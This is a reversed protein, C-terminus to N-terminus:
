VSASRRSVAPVECDPCIERRDIWVAACRPCYSKGGVALSPETSVIAQLTAPGAAASLDPDSARGHVADYARPRVWEAFLGDRALARVAQAPSAGAIAAQYVGELARGAAFPSCWRLAQCRRASAPLVLRGLAWWGGTATAVALGLVVASGALFGVGGLRATAVPLGLVLAASTLGGGAALWPAWRRAVAVRAGLDEASISGPGELPPLVLAPALPPWWSVLRWRGRTERQAAPRWGSWGMARVVLGGAPIRRFGDVLVLIAFVAVIEWDVGQLLGSV